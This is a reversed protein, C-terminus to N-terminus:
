HNVVQKRCAEDGSFPQWVAISRSVDWQCLRKLFDGEAGFPCPISATENVAQSEWEVHGFVDMSTEPSCRELFTERYQAMVM